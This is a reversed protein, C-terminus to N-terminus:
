PLDSTMIVIKEPASIVPLVNQVADGVLSWPEREPTYVRAWRGPAGNGEVTPALHTYGLVYDVPPRSGAGVIYRSGTNEGLAVLKTNPMFKVNTTKGPNALDMIEGELAYSLLTVTDRADPSPVNLSNVTIYRQVTVQTPTQSTVTLSNVTNGIIADILDPHAVFARVNYRLLKRAARIDTWFKSTSGGYADNGTRATLKNGTPV